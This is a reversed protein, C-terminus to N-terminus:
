KSLKLPMNNIYNQSYKGLYKEYCSSTNLSKFFKYLYGAEIKFTYKVSIAHRAECFNNNKYKIDLLNYSIIWQLINCFILFKIIKKNITNTLFIYLFIVFPNLLLYKTPM